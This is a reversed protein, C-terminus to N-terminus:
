QFNFSGLFLGPGTGDNAQGSVLEGAALQPQEVLHKGGDAGPEPLWLSVTFSVAPTGCASFSTPGVGEYTGAAPATQWAIDERQIGDIVCNRNSDHDLVGNSGGAAAKVSTGPPATTVNKGGVRAGSPTQVILDLDVAANWTLSLM